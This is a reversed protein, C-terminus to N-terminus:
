RTAAFRASVADWNVVNWWAAIYDVRKNQYNLYYAHEWVDLGLIPTGRPTVTDMLPNDQNATTTIQLKGEANVMLWAWGSGFIKSAAESFQTKFADISGFDANIQASLADSMEGVDSPAAMVQWFLSHNFHGGANNRVAPAYASIAELIQLLNKDALRADKAVEANLNNVYAQHHKGHHINMTAADIHPALADSPYPLLPLTFTEARAVWPLSLLLSLACSYLSHIRVPNEENLPIPLRL